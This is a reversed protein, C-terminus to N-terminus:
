SDPLPTEAQTEQMIQSPFAQSTLTRGLLRTVIMWALIVVLLLWTIWQIDRGVLSGDAVVLKLWVVLIIAGVGEAM